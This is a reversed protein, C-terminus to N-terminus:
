KMDESSFGTFVLKDGHFPKSPGPGNKIYCLNSEDSLLFDYVGLIIRLHTFCLRSKMKSHVLGKITTFQHTM